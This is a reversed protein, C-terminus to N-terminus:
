GETNAEHEHEADRYEHEHEYDVRNLGGNIVIM